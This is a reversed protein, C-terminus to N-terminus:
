AKKLLRVVWTKKEERKKAMEEAEKDGKCRTNRTKPITLDM